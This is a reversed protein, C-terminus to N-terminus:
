RSRDEASSGIGIVLSGTGSPPAMSPRPVVKPRENLKGAVHRVVPVSALRRVTHRLRAQAERDLLAPKEALDLAGKRISEFVLQRDGGV